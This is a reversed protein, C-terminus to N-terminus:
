GDSRRSRLTETKRHRRQAESTGGDNQFIQLRLFM